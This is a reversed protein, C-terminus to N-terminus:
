AGIVQPERDLSGSASPSRIRACRQARRAKGNPWGKSRPGSEKLEGRKLAEIIEAEDKDSCDAEFGTQKPKKM